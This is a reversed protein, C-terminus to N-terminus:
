APRRWTGAAILVAASLLSVALGARLGPPRYRLVVRSRGAPVEVARYRGNCRLVPAAAGNVTASWGRTWTERMAVVTPRDAEVALDVWDSGGSAEVIRGSVGSAERSAGEVVAIGAEDLAGAPPPQGFRRVTRAVFRLPLPEALEYIGVQLPAIRPPAAVTRLRLRPDPVPDLSIVDSVAGSRLREAIAGFDSCSADAPPVATLPVLSTLDESFATPVRVATNLNPTLTEMYVAFTWVEHNSARAARAQWYAASRHVDCTFTRGRGRLVEAERTMEESPRFFSATVTPNLGAGTRLLDAAVLATLALCAVRPHLRRALRLLVVGGAALAVMGGRMADDVVYRFRDLRLPWSMAPPFFAAQFRQATDPMAALIRPGLVLLGGLGFSAAALERWAGGEEDRELADLGLAVLLAAALHVTFFAKAPYRFPRVPLAEVLPQLGAWRGLCVVMAALALAALRAAFIRGRRAGIWALALVTAGLYLSLIYPFGRPFFNQGWWRNTLDSLDGYLGGIVVQLATFPHM